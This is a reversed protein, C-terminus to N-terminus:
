LNMQKIAINELKMLTDLNMAELPQKGKALRHITARDLGSMKAIETQKLPSEFILWSVRELASHISTEITFDTYNEHDTELEKQIAKYEM